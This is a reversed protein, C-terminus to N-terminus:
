PTHTRACSKFCTRGHHHIYYCGWHQSLGEKAEVEHSFVLICRHVHWTVRTVSDHRVHSNTLDCVNLLRTLRDWAEVEHSLVIIFSDHWVCSPTTDQSERQQTDACVCVCVCVCVCATHTMVHARRVNIALWIGVCHLECRRVAVCKMGVCKLARCCVALFQINSIWAGASTFLCACTTADQKMMRQPTSCRAKCHRATHQVM